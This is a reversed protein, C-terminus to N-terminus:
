QLLVRFEARGTETRFKRFSAELESISPLLDYSFFPHVTKASLEKLRQRFPNESQIDLEEDERHQDLLHTCLDRAAASRVPVDLPDIGNFAPWAYAAFAYGPKGLLAVTQASAFQFERLAIESGGYQCLELGVRELVPVSVLPMKLLHYFRSRRIDLRIREHEFGNKLSDNRAQELVVLNQELTEDDSVSEPFTPLYIDLFLIAREGSFTTLGDSALRNLKSQTRTIAAERAENRDSLNTREDSGESLSHEIRRSKALWDKAETLRGLELLATIKHSIVYARGVEDDDLESEALKFRELADSPRLLHTLAIGAERFFRGREKKSTGRPATLAYGDESLLCLAEFKLGDLGYARSLFGLSHGHRSSDQPLEFIEQELCNNFVRIASKTLREVEQHEASRTARMYHRIAELAYVVQSNRWPPSYPLENLTAGQQEVRTTMNELVVGIAAHVTSRNSPNHLIWDDQVLSRLLLPLTIKLGDDSLRLINGRSDNIVDPVDESKISFLGDTRLKEVMELSIFFLSTSALRIAEFEGSIAGLASQKEPRDRRLGRIFSQIEGLCDTIEPVHTRLKNDLRDWVGVTPDFPSPSRSDTACLARFRISTPMSTYNNDSMEAYHHRVRKLMNNSLKIRPQTDTGELQTRLNSYYELCDQFYGFAHESHEIEPNFEFHKIKGNNLNRFHNRDWAVLVLCTCRRFVGGPVKTLEEIKLALATIFHSATKNYDDIVSSAGHVVMLMQRKTLEAAVVTAWGKKALDEEVTAELDGMIAKAAESGIKALKEFRNLHVHLVGGRYHDAFSSQRPLLRHLLYAMGSHPAAYIALAPSGQGVPAISSISDFIASVQEVEAKFLPLSDAIYSASNAPFIECPTRQGHWAQDQLKVRDEESHAADEGYSNLLLGCSKAYYAYHSKDRILGLALPTSDTSSVKQQLGLCDRFAEAKLAELAKRVGGAKTFKYDSAFLKSLAGQSVGLAVAVRKKWPQPHGGKCCANQWQLLKLKKDLSLENIKM